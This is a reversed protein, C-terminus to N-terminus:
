HSFTAKKNLLSRYRKEAGLRTIKVETARINGPGSLLIASSNKIVVDKGSELLLRLM